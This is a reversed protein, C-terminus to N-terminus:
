SRSMTMATAAPTSMNSQTRGVRLPRFAFAKVRLPEMRRRFARNASSWAGM